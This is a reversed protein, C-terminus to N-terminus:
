TKLRSIRGASVPDGGRRSRRSGEYAMVDAIQLILAGDRLVHAVLISQAEIRGSQMFQKVVDANDVVEGDVGARMGADNRIAELVEDRREEAFVSAERWRGSASLM